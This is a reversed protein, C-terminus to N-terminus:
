ELSFHVIDITKENVETINVQWSATEQCNECHYVRTYDNKAIPLIFKGNVQVQPESFARYVSLYDTIMLLQDSELNTTLQINDQSKDPKRPPHQYDDPHALTFDVPKLPTVKEIVAYNAIKNIKYKKEELSRYIRSSLLTYGKKNGSFFLQNADCKYQTLVGFSLDLVPVIPGHLQKTQRSCMYDDLVEAQSFSIADLKLNSKERWNANLPTMVQRLSVDPLEFENNQSFRIMSFWTASILVLSLGALIWVFPKIWIIIQCLGYGILMATIPAIVYTMYFPTIDRIFLVCACVSFLAWTLLLIKDFSLTKRLMGTIYGIAAVILSSFYLTYLCQKWGHLSGTVVDTLLIPGTYLMSFLLGPILAVRELSLQSSGFTNATQFDHWGDLYQQFFYPFLLLAVFLFSLAIDKTSFLNKLLGKLLFPTAFLLLGYTSPHAHIALTFVLALWKLLAGNQSNWLKWLLLLFLLTLTQVTNTHSFGLQEITQWGPLTMVFVTCLAYIRHIIHRCLEYAFIFKLGATLGVWLVILWKTEFIGVLSLWYFWWPGLHAVNALDPGQLIIENGSVIQNVKYFDRANDLTIGADLYSGAYICTLVLIFCYDLFRIKAIKLNNYRLNEKQKETLCNTLCVPEVNM